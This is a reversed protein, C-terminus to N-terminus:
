YLEPRRSLEFSPFTKRRQSVRETDVFVPILCEGEIGHAIMIGSPDVAASEGMFEDSYQNCALMYVSNEVARSILLANWHLLKLDDRNWASPVIFIEAGKLAQKLVIEPFRLEYCVLMGLKGFPTDIPDFLEDGPMLIDSEKETFTDYMHTKHYNRLIEGKNNVLLTSNYNRNENPDEPLESMGFVMWINYEKALNCMDTVFPGNIHQATELIIRSDTGPPKHFMFSEPFIIFDAHYEDIAKVVALRSKELTLEPTEEAKMQAMVFMNKM